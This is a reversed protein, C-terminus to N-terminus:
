PPRVLVAEHGLALVLVQPVRAAHPVRRREGRARPTRLAHCVRLLTRTRRITRITRRGRRRTRTSRAHAWSRRRHRASAECTCPERGVARGGVALEQDGRALRDRLVPVLREDVLEGEVARSRLESEVQWAREVVMGRGVQHSVVDLRREVDLVRAEPRRAPRPRCWAPRVGGGVVRAVLALDGHGLGHHVEVSLESRCQAALDDDEVAIRVRADAVLARAGGDLPDAERDLLRRPRPEEVLAGGGGVEQLPLVQEEARREREDAGARLEAPLHDVVLM